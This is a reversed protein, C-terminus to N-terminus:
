LESVGPAWLTVTVAVLASPLPLAITLKVTGSLSIGVAGPAGDILAIVVVPAVAVQAADISLTPTM